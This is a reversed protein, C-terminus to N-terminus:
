DRHAPGESYKESNNPDGGKLDSSPIMVGRTVAVCTVLVDCAMKPALACNGNLLINGKNQPTFVACM